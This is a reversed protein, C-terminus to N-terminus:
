MLSNLTVLHISGMISFGFGFPVVRIYVLIHLKIIFFFFSSCYDQVLLGDSGFCCDFCWVDTVLTLVCLCLLFMYADGYKLIRLFEIIFFRCFLLISCTFSILQYNFLGCHSVAVNLLVSLPYLSFMSKIKEIKKIEKKKQAKTNNYRLMM